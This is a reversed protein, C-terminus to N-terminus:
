PMHQCVQTYKRLYFVNDKKEGNETKLYFNLIKKRVESAKAGFDAETAVVNEVFSRFNEEGYTAQDQPAIGLLHMGGHAITFIASIHLNQGPVVSKRNRFM